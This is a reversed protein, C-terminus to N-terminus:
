IIYMVYCQLLLKHLRKVKEMIPSSRPIPFQILKMSIHIILSSFLASCPTHGKAPFKAM